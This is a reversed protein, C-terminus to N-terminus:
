YVAIRVKTIIVDVKNSIRTYFEFLVGFRVVTSGNPLASGLQQIIECLEIVESSVHVGAQKGRFETKSGPIPCGYSADLQHHGLNQYTSGRFSPSISSTAQTNYTQSQDAKAQWSAVKSNISNARVNQAGTPEM